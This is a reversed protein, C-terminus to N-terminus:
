RGGGNNYNPNAGHELLFKAIDLNSNNSAWLLASWGVGSKINPDAGHELLWRVLDLNDVFSANILQPDGSQDQINPDIKFKELLIRLYNTDKWSNFWIHELTEGLLIRKTIDAVIQQDTM